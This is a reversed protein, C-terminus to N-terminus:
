LFLYAISFVIVFDLAVVKQNKIKKKIKMRQIVIKKTKKIEIVFAVNKPLFVLKVVNM